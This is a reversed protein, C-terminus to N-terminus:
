VPGAFSREKLFHDVAAAVRFLSGCQDRDDDNIDLRPWDIRFSMSTFCRDNVPYLIFWATRHNCTRLETEGYCGNDDITPEPLTRERFPKRTIGM